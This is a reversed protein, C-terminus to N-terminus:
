GLGTWGFRISDRSGSFRKMWANFYIHADHTSKIWSCIWIWGRVCTLILCHKLVRATKATTLMLLSFSHRCQQFFAIRLLLETSFSPVPGHFICGCSHILIFQFGLRVTPEAIGRGLVATFAKNKACSNLTNGASLFGLISVSSKRTLSVTSQEKSDSYLRGSM